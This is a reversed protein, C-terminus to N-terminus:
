LEPYYHTFNEEGGYKRTCNSVNHSLQEWETRDIIREECCERLKKNNCGNRPDEINNDARNQADLFYFWNDLFDVIHKELIYFVLLFIGVM